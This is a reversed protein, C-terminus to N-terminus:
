AKRFNTVQVGDKAHLGSPSFFDFRGRLPPLGLKRAQEDTATHDSYQRRVTSGDALQLEVWDGQKIGRLKFQEQIDPSIALSNEDLTNNWAGVRNKSANDKWPDAKYGYSTVKGGMAPASADSLPKGQLIKKADELTKRAEQPPKYTSEPSSLFKAAASAPADKSLRDKFWNNIEVQGWEPHRKLLAEGEQTIQLAKEYAKENAARAAADKEKASEGWWWHFESLNPDIPKSSLGKTFEGFVKAHLANKTLEGLVKKASTNVPGSRGKTQNELESMLKSRYDSRLSLVSSMLNFHEESTPDKAPDYLEISRQVTYYQEFSPPASATARDELKSFYNTLKQAAIPDLSPGFFEKADDMTTIRGGDIMDITAGFREGRLSNTKHEAHQQLKLRQIQPLDKYQEPDSLAKSATVPDAEIAAQARNFQVQKEAHLKMGEAQDDWALGKQRMVDATAKAGEVDGADIQTEYLRTHAKTSRDFSVDAAKLSLAGTNKRGFEMSYRQIAQKAYPSLSKDALLEKTKEGLAKEYGTAWTNTDSGPALQSQYATFHENLASQAGIIATDNDARAKEAFINGLMNSTQSVGRALSRMGQAAGDFAGQRIGEERLMNAAQSFNAGRGAAEGTPMAVGQPANPIAAIPIRPM